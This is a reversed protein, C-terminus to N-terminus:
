ETSFLGAHFISNMLVEQSCVPRHIPALFHVSYYYETQAFLPRPSFSLFLAFPCPLEVRPRVLLFSSDGPM